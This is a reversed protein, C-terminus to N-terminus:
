CPKTKVLGMGRTVQYGCGAYNAFSSLANITQIFGPNNNLFKFVVEGIFGIQTRESTQFEITQIHHFSIICDSSVMKHALTVPLAPGFFSKWRRELGAFVEIPDPLLFSYKRNERDRKTIATPTEFHFLISNSTDGELFDSWTSIGAWDSFNLDIDQIFYETTGIKLKPNNSLSNVLLDLTEIGEPGIFTTRIKQHVQDSDIISITLCKGKERDHLGKSFLNNMQFLRSFIEKHVNECDAITLTNFQNPRINIVMAVFYM